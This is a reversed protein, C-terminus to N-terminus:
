SPPTSAPSKPAQRPGPGDEESLGARTGERRLREVQISLLAVDPPRVGALRSAAGLTRPRLHELKERAEGALGPLTAYDFDLPIEVSERRRMREVEERQRAVYGEYKVDIELAERLEADLGLASLEPHAQELEGLHVAPRRLLETLLRGGEGRTSDLVARGEKLRSEKSDLRALAASAERGLLGVANARRMLRRDANDQRLILRFEARSSFMRYPETPNSVILDDIMVGIYAEERGLM